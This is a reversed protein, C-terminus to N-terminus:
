RRTPCRCRSAPWRRRFRCPIAPVFRQLQIQQSITKICFVPGEVPEPVRQSVNVIVESLGCSDCWRPVGIASDDQNFTKSSNNEMLTFSLSADNFSSISLGNKPSKSNYEISISKADNSSFAMCGIYSNVASVDKSNITIKIKYPDLHKNVIFFKNKEDKSFLCIHQINLKSSPVYVESDRQQTYVEFSELSSTNYPYEYQSNKINTTQYVNNKLSLLSYFIQTGNTIKILYGYNTDSFIVPLQKIIPIDTTYFKAIFTHDNIQNLILPFAKKETNQGDLILEVKIHNFSSKDFDIVAEKSDLM